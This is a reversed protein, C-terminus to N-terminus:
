NHDQGVQDPVISFKPEQLRVNLSLHQSHGYEHILLGVYFRVGFTLVYRSQDVDKDNVFGRRPLLKASRFKQRSFIIQTEKGRFNKVSNINFNNTFTVLKEFFFRLFGPPENHNM